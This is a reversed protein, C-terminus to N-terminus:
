PHMVTMAVGMNASCTTVNLVHDKLEITTWPKAKIWGFSSHM